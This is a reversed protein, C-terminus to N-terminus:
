KNRIANMIFRPLTKKRNEIFQNYEKDSLAFLQQIIPRAVVPFVCLSVINIFMERFDSANLEPDSVSTRMQQILQAPAVPASKFMALIRDPNHNVEEIIFAPIHSNKQLFGIYECIIDSLKQELPADSGATIFLKSLLDKFTSQFVADFLNVKSRFYYHLLAKNIGAEDAIEQMRAGEYGKLHFVTKAAEMIKQETSLTVKVVKNLKM